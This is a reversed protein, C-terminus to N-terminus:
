RRHPLSKYVLGIVAWVIFGAVIFPFLLGIAIVGVVPVFFLVIFFGAALATANDKRALSNKYM